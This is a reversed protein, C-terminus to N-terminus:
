DDVGDGLERPMPRPGDRREEPRVPRRRWLDGEKYWKYREEGNVIHIMMERFVLEEGEQQVFVDVDYIDGDDTVFEACAFYTDASVRGLHDWMVEHLRLRAERQLEEDFIVFVGGSTGTKENIYEEVARVVDEDKVGKGEGDGNPGAGKRCGGLLVAALVAM